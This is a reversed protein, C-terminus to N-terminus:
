MSAAIAYIESTISRSFLKVAAEINVPSLAPFSLKKGSMRM